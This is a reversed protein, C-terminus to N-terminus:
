DDSEECSRLALRISTVTDCAGCRWGAQGTAWRAWQDSVLFPYPHDGAPLDAYSVYARFLKNRVTGCHNCAVEDLWMKAM